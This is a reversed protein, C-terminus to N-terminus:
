VSVTVPDTAGDSSVAVLTITQEAGGNRKLAYSVDMVVVEASVDVGGVGDSGNEATRLVLAAEDGPRLPLAEDRVVRRKVRIEVVQEPVDAFVVHPGGDQFETIRKSASRDISVSLVEDLDVTGITVVAPNLWIV